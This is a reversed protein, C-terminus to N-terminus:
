SKFKNSYIKTNKWATHFVDFCHARTDSPNENDGTRIECFIKPKKEASIYGIEFGYNFLETVTKITVIGPAGIRMHHDGFGPKEKDTICNTLHLESIINKSLLLSKLISEQNLLLHALDLQFGINSVSKKVNEILLVSEPITGLSRKKHARIDFHEVLIELGPNVAASECIEILVQEFIILAQKRAKEDQPTHGSILQVATAGAERAEDLRNLIIDVSKKRCNKDPSCLDMNNEDIVRALCYNYSMNKGLAKKIAKREIPYPVEVTQIAKYFGESIIAELCELTEGEKDRTNPWINSMVVGPTIFDHLKQNM